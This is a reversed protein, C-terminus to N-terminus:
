KTLIMRKVDIVEGDVILSYLYMGAELRSGELVISNKGKQSLTFQEIQKGNMNYILLSANQSNQPIAYGIVTNDSFPNPANQFLESEIDDILSDKMDESGVVASRSIPFQKESKLEQIEATLEQISQVLLPVMEIYNISLEGQANEYVLDPYVQQLEQAVFGYHTKSYAQLEETAPAPLVTLTDADGMSLPAMRANSQNLNYQVTNLLSLKDTVKEDTTSAESLAMVNQQLSTASATLIQGYISGTVRVDGRFYGAYRGPVYDGYDSEVSSGYIGAGNVSGTLLGCVGWNYGSTTNGARGMVGYARGSNLPTPGAWAVGQIGATYKSSCPITYGLAAIAWSESPRTTCNVRIGTNKASISVDVKSEGVTNVSISSLPATSSKVAVNGNSNVALQAFVSTCAFVACLFCIKKKM